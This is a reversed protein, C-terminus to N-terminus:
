VSECSCNTLLTQPIKRQEPLFLRELGHDPVVRLSELGLATKFGGLVCVIDSSLVFFGATYEVM